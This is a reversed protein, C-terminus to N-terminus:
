LEVGSIPQHDPNESSRSNTYQALVGVTQSVWPKEFYRYDDINGLPLDLAQLTAAYSLSGIASRSGGGGPDPISTRGSRNSAASKTPSGNIPTTPSSRGPRYM